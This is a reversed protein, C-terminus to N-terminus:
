YRIDKLREVIYLRCYACQLGLQVSGKAPDAYPVFARRTRKRRPQDLTRTDDKQRAISKLIAFRNFMVGSFAARHRFRNRSPPM